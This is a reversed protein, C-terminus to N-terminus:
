EGLLGYREFIEFYRKATYENKRDEVLKRSLEGHSILLGPSEIYNTIGQVFEEAKLDCIFCNKGNISHKEVHNIGNSIVVGMGSAGAEIITGNGNSYTAPLILIDANKYVLHMNNWSDIKDLFKVNKLGRNEIYEICKSKLPGDNNMYLETNPYKSVIKEFVELVFLPQYRDILRNAFLIRYSDGNTKTRLPHNFYEEIDQPYNTWAVKDKEFEIEEIFQKAALEGMGLYLDAGSFRRRVKGLTKLSNEKTRLLNSKDRDSKIYRSPESMFVVKKNFMKGLRLILWHWNMLGGLAIIDPNFRILDYFVGLSFYGIKPARGSIKLVKCKEGLPIEWWKPRNAERRVYFWFETNFYQQLAYCFKVQYPSAMNSIFVLKKKKM